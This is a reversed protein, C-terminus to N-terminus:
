PHLPGGLRVEVQGQPGSSSRGVRARGGHRSSRRGELGLGGPDGEREDMELACTM